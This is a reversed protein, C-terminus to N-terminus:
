HHERLTRMSYNGRLLPTILSFDFDTAELVKEVSKRVNKSVTILSSVLQQPFRGNM